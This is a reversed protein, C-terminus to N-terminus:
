HDPAYPNYKTPIDVIISDKISNNSSNNTGILYKSYSSGAVTINEFVNNLASRIKLSEQNGDLIVHQFVNDNNGKPLASGDEGTMELSIGFVNGKTIFNKITNHNASDRVQVGIFWHGNDPVNLSSKCKIIENNYVHHALYFGEGFSDAECNIIKNNYSFPGAYEGAPANWNDKIGIGHGLHADVGSPSIYGAHTNRALCNQVVNDHSYSICLYYGASLDETFTDNLTRVGYM